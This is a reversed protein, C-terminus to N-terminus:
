RWRTPAAVYDFPTDGIVELLEIVNGDPDRGYAVRLATDGVPRTPPAHFRMGATRLREYEADIDDVALCLHTFGADCVPRDPDGPRAQPTSYEFMELCQNGIGLLMVRAASGPLGVIADTEPSDSWATEVLRTMGLVDCYFDALREIDCTAIATHHVGLLM